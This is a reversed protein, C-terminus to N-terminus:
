YNCVMRLFLAGVTFFFPYFPIALPSVDLVISAYMTAFLKLVFSLILPKEFLNPVIVNPSPLSNSIEFRLITATLLCHPRKKVLRGDSFCDGYVRL